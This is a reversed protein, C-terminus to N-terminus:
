RNIGVPRGSADYIYNPQRTKGTRAKLMYDDSAGWSKRRRQEIALWGIHSYTTTDREILRPKERSFIEQALRRVDQDAHTMLKAFTDRLLDLCDSDLAKTEVGRELVLPILHTAADVEYLDQGGAMRQLEEGTSLPLMETMNVLFAVREPDSISEELLLTLGEADFAPVARLDVPSAEEVTEEIPTQQPFALEQELTAM